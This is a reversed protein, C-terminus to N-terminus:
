LRLGLAHWTNVAAFGREELARLTDVNSARTEVLITTPPLAALSALARDTLPAAWTAEVSPDTHLEFEHTRTGTADGDVSLTGLLEGGEEVIWREIRRGSLRIFAPALLRAFAPRRHEHESVAVVEQVADPTERLALRHRRKWDGYWARHGIRRPSIAPNSPEGSPTSRRLQVTTDYHVFGLDRYLRYAPDNDARVKLTVTGGGRERIAEVSRTVLERAHGRRRADPHTVVSEISWRDGALGVRAFHVFSVIRGETEWVFGPSLDRLAPFVRGLLRLAAVVRRERDMGRRIERGIRDFDEAYGVEVLDYIQELDQQIDYDRVGYKENV